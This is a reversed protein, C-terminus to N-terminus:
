FIRDRKIKPINTTQPLGDDLFAAQFQFSEGKKNTPGITPATETSQKFALM